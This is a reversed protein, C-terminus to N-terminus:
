VGGHTFMRDGTQEYLIQIHGRCRMLWPGGSDCQSPPRSASCTHWWRVKYFKVFTHTRSELKETEGPWQLRLDGGWVMKGLAKHTKKKQISFAAKRQRREQTLPWTTSFWYTDLSLKLWHQWASGSVRLQWPRHSFTACHSLSVDKLLRQPEIHTENNDNNNCKICWFLSLWFDNSNYWLDCM